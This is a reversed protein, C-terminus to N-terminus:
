ATRKKDPSRTKLFIALLTKLIQADIPTQIVAKINTEQKVLELTALDLHRDPLLIIPIEVADDTQLERLTEYSGNAKLGLLILEPRLIRAKNVGERTTCAKETKFGEKHVIYSLLEWLTEDDTIILVTHGIM